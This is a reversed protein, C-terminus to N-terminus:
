CIHDEVLLHRMSEISDDFFL